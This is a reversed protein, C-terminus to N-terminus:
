SPIQHLHTAPRATHLYEAPTQLTNERVLVADVCMEARVLIRGTVDQVLVRLQTEADQRMDVLARLMAPRVVVPRGPRDVALRLADGLHRFVAFDFWRLVPAGALGLRDLGVRQLGPHRGSVGDPLEM